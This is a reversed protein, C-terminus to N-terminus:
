RVYLTGRMGPHVSCFFQYSQGSKVQDLGEVPASEGLGILKTHFLAGGNPGKDVSQVDHQVSDLNVFSLPGGVDTFMAPTAYGTSAAGPGAVVSPGSPGGGGGGGGNGGLSTDQVDSAVDAAGGRRYAVVFGDALGLVGVAAYVTNRAVSVGAWSLAQPNNGGIALPRKALLTGSRADFADLFGSFDVSYVIGNAVTVPPGWHAGDAVPGLWRYAGDKLGLSWVYGPVTVPGYVSGGDIATSGVIGGVSTPPGVVSKWV